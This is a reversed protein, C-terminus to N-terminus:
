RGTSAYQHEEVHSVNVENVVMSVSQAEEVNNVCTNLGGMSAFRAGEVNNVTQREDEMVVYQVEKM